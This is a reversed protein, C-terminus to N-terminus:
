EFRISHMTAISALPIDNCELCRIRISLIWIIFDIVFLFVDNWKHSFLIVIKGFFWYGCIFANSDNWAITFLIWRNQISNFTYLIPSFIALKARCSLALIKWFSYLILSLFFIQTFNLIWSTSSSLSHNFWRSSLFFNALSSLSFAVFSIPSLCVQFNSQM